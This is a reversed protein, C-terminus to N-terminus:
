FHVLSPFWVIGLKLVSWSPGHCVDWKFNKRQMYIKICVCWATEEVNILCLLAFFIHQCWHSFMWQASFPFTHPTIGRSTVVTIYPMVTDLCFASDSLSLTLHHHDLYQVPFLPLFSSPLIITKKLRFKKVEMTDTPKKTLNSAVFHRHVIVSEWGAAPSNDLWHNRVELRVALNCYSSQSKFFFNLTIDHPHYIIM